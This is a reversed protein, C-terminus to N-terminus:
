RPIELYFSTGSRATEVGIHGRYLDVIKKVIFLGLGKGDEGAGGSFPDFINPLDSESIGSGTDSIRLAIRSQNRNEPTMYLKEQAEITIIGCAHGISQRANYLLYFLMTELHGADMPVAPLDQPIMKLVTIKQFSFEYQMARLVQRVSDQMCAAQRNGPSGRDPRAISRLHEIMRIVRDTQALTREITENARELLEEKSEACGGSHADHLHKETIQKIAYLSHVLDNRLNRSVIEYANRM